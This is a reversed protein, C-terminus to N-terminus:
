IKCELNASKKCDIEHIKRNILIHERPSFKGIKVMMPRLGSVGSLPLAALPQRRLPQYIYIICIIIYMICLISHYRHDIHYIDHPKRYLSVEPSNQIYGGLTLRDQMYVNISTHLMVIYIFTSMITEVCGHVGLLYQYLFTLIITQLSTSYIDQTCHVIYMWYVPM